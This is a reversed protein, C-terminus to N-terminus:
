REYTRGDLSSWVNGNYQMSLGRTYGITLMVLGFMVRRLSHELNAHTSLLELSVVGSASIMFCLKDHQLLSILAFASCFVFLRVNTRKREAWDSSPVDEEYAPPIDIIVHSSM